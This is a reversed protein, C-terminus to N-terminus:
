KGSITDGTREIEKGLDSMTRGLEEISYGTERRITAATKMVRNILTRAASDAKQGSREIARDLYYVSASLRDATKDLEKRIRSKSALEYYHASLAFYAKSLVGDIRSVSQVGGREIEDALSEIEAASRRLRVSALDSARSAEARLYIAGKRLEFAARKMENALFHERGERLYIAPDEMFYAWDKEDIVVYGEPAKIRKEDAVASRGSFTLAALFILPVFLMKM